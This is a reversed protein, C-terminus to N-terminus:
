STLPVWTHSWDVLRAPGAPPPTSVPAQLHVPAGPPPFTVAGSSRNLIVCSVAIGRSAIEAVLRDTEAAVVEEDLTVAVVAARSAEHLLADLARLNRAFSLVDAAADGLGGIEKYKLMLRMLQHSWALATKPMELLRLLHGTPAPDVIVREYRREFLADSLLALAYVEDVGPPALALLDRM